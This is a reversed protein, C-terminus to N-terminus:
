VFVLQRYEESVAVPRQTRPGHDRCSGLWCPERDLVQVGISMGIEHHRASRGAAYRHMKSITAPRERGLGLVCRSIQGDGNGDPIHVGIAFGIEDNGASTSVAAHGNQKPVPVTRESTSRIEIPAFATGGDRDTIQVPVTGQVDDGKSRRTGTSRNQKASPVPGQAGLRFVQRTPQGIEVRDAIQISVAFQVENGRVNGGLSWGRNRNQQSIAVAGKPRTRISRRSLTDFRHRDRLQVPIPTGIEGHGVHIGDGDQESLTIPAQLGRRCERGTGIWILDRGAIQVSVSLSVKDGRTRPVLVM